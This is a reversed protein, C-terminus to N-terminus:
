VQEVLEAQLQLYQGSTANLREAADRLARNTFKTGDKRTEIVTYRCGTPVRRCGPRRSGVALPPFAPVSLRSGLPLCWARRRRRQEWGVSLAEEALVRGPRKGHL